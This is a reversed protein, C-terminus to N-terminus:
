DSGLAAMIREVEDAVRQRFEPDAESELAVNENRLMDITQSIVLSHTSVAERVQTGLDEALESFNTKFQAYHADFFDRNGLKDTIINKKRRDSGTGPLM